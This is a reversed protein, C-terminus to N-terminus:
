LASKKLVGTLGCYTTESGLALSAAIRGVADAKMIGSGSTGTAVYRGEVLRDVVNKDDYHGACANQPTHGESAPVYRTLVSCIGFRWLQKESEPPEELRFPRRNSVGVWYTGERPEPRLYIGRGIVGIDAIMYDYVRM